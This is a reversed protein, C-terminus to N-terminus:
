REEIFHRHGPCRELALSAPFLKQTGDVVAGIVQHIKGDKASDTSAFRASLAPAFSKKIPQFAPTFGRSVAPRSLSARLGRQLGSYKMWNAVEADDISIKLAM